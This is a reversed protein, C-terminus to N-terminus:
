AHVFRRRIEEAINTVIGTVLANGMLFARKGPSYGETFNDPFMNLRELELPILRRPRRNVPDIIVHKFRSPTKGGEATVITRSPKEISDPFSVAGESYTFVFGDKTKREVKKAGKVYTWSLYDEDNIYYDDTVLKREEETKALIDKLVTYKGNYASEVKYTVYEGYQMLGANLFPTNKNEINFNDSLDLLSWDSKKRLYEGYMSYQITKPKVPFAKAFIGNRFIWDEASQIKNALTSDKRYGLIFTRKRRQPFGYEAANIIRWEVVYGLQNLSDLIIAFDRGHQKSPSSLLRDVNEFLLISPKNEGKGKLIRVIEWWLVGKKGEIGKPSNFSKAISYDQCPFGATLIDCDPIESVPVTAIDQCVHNESGFHKQYIASADQKKTSPEFQNSWVFDYFKENERNAREFGVRFGGIGAFLEIVKM